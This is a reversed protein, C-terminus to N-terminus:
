ADPVEPRSGWSGTAHLFILGHAFHVVPVLLPDDGQRITWGHDRAEARLREVREHCGGASTASGCLVIGNQPANTDAQRSGGMGRARRHQLSYDWGREGHLGGGCRVCAGDRQLIAEATAPSFGTDRRTM